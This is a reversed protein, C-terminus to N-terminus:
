WPGRDTTAGKPMRASKGEMLRNLDGRRIPVAARNRGRGSRSGQQKCGSLRSTRTAELGQHYGSSRGRSIDGVHRHGDGECVRRCWRSTPRQQRRSGGKLQEPCRGIDPVVLLLARFFRGFHRAESRRPDGGDAKIRVCAFGQSAPVGVINDPTRAGCVAV